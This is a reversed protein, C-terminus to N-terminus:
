WASMLISHTAWPCNSGVSRPNGWSAMQVAMPHGYRRTVELVCRMGQSTLVLLNMLCIEPSLSSAGPLHVRPGM